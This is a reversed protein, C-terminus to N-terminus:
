RAGGAGAPENEPAVWRAMAWELNPRRLHWDTERQYAEGLALLIPEGGRRGVLQLGVPLGDSGFGCPVSLAPLGALNWACTFASAPTLLGWSGADIPPATSPTTPMALVDVRKLAAEVSQTLGARLESARVLDSALYTAGILLRHRLADSYDNPREKLSAQHLTFAESVFISWIAQAEEQLEVKADVVAAGKASLCAVAEDFCNAVEASVVSADLYFDRLVGVRLHALCESGAVSQDLGTTAGRGVLADFLLRCDRTSRALPGVTDMSKILPIVGSTPIRGFTPKLGVVGSYSAPIRISGGTDSGLTGVVLGSAVAIAPGSSSSGPLHAPNWPNRGTPFPGSMAPGGFAFEHLALIGLVVAGARRLRGVAVADRKPLWGALVRSGAQTPVGRTAFIDKVAVPVGHLPGRDRGKRLESEARRAAALAGSADVVQFANLKSNLSAIRALQVECVELPSVLGGRYALALEEISAYAPDVM